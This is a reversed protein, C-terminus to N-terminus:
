PCCTVERKEFGRRLRGELDPLSGPLQRQALASGLGAAISVWFPNLVSGIVYAAVMTPGPIFLSLAGLLTIVFIGGYGYAAMQQANVPIFLVPAWALGAPTM